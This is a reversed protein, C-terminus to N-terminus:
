RVRAPATIARVIGVLAGGFARVVGGFRPSTLIAVAAAATIILAVTNAVKDGM